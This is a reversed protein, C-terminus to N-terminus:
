KYAYNRSRVKSQFVQNFSRLDRKIQSRLFLSASCSSKIMLRNMSLGTTAQLKQKRLPFIPNSTFDHRRLSLFFFFM